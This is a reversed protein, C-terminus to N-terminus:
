VRITPYRLRPLTSLSGRVKLRVWRLWNSYTFLPLGRRKHCTRLRMLEDGMGMFLVSTGIAVAFYALKHLTSITNPLQVAINALEQESIVPAKGKFTLDKPFSVDQLPVLSASIDIGTWPIPEKWDFPELDASAVRIAAPKARDPTYIPNRHRTRHRYHHRYKAYSEYHEGTGRTDAPSPM